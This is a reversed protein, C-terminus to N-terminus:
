PLPALNRSSAGPIVLTLRRSIGGPIDHYPSCAKLADVVKALTTAEAPSSGAAEGLPYADIFTGSQDLVVSVVTNSLPRDKLCPRVQDWLGPQSTSLFSSPALSVRAGPDYGSGLSSAPNADAGAGSGGVSHGQDISAADGGEEGPSPSPAAVSDPSPASTQPTAPAAEVGSNATSQAFFGGSRGSVLEVSIGGSGLDTAPMRSLPPTATRWLALLGLHLAIVIALALGRGIRKPWISRVGEIGLIEAGIPVATTHAFARDMDPDFSASTM